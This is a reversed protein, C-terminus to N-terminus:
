RLIPQLEEAHAELWDFIDDVIKEVTHTPRWGTAAM